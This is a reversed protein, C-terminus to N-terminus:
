ALTRRQHIGHGLQLYRGDDPNLLDVPIGRAQAARVIALTSPGLREGDALDRLRRLEEDIPYPRGECAARCVDLATQVCARGVPEEQYEIAIRYHGPRALPRTEGFQVANGARVQLRVAIRQFVRALNLADKRAGNTGNGGGARAPSLALAPLWAAVREAVEVLRDSPLDAWDGLDLDVELIPCAAWANPGRLVGVRSLKM